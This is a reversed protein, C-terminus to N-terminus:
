QQNFMQNRAAAASLETVAECCGLLHHLYEEHRGNSNDGDIKVIVLDRHHIVPAQRSVDFPWWTNRQFDATKSGKIQKAGQEHASSIAKNKKSLTV